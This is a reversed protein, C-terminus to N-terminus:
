LEVQKTIILSLYQNLLMLTLVMYSLEAQNEFGRGRENSQASTAFPMGHAHNSLLKYISKFLDGILSYREAIQENTFHMDFNGSRVKQAMQKSLGKYIASKMIWEKKRPLEAEFENLMREKNKTEKFL